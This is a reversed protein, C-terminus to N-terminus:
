EDDDEYNDHGPRWDEQRAREAAIKDDYGELFIRATHMAERTREVLGQEAYRIWNANKWLPNGVYRIEQALSDVQENGHRAEVLLDIATGLADIDHTM